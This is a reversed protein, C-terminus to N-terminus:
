KSSKKLLTKRRDQEDATDEQQLFLEIEDDTPWGTRRVSPILGTRTSKLTGSRIDLFFEEGAMAEIGDGLNFGVEAFDRSYEAVLRPHLGSEIGRSALFALGIATVIKRPSHKLRLKEVFSVLDSELNFSSDLHCDHWRKKLFRHATDAQVRDLSSLGNKRLAATRLEIEFRWWGKAVNHKPAKHKNYIKIVQPRKGWELTNHGKKNRYVKDSPYHPKVIGELAELRFAPHSVFFDRTLALKRVSVAKEWGEPYADMLEGTSSDLLWIPRFVDRLYEIVWHIVGPLLEVPCLTSTPQGKIVDLIRSPNFDLSVLDGGREMKIYINTRKDLNINGKAYNENTGNSYTKVGHSTLIEASGDSYTSLLPISILIKDIGIFETNDTFMPKMSSPIYAKTTIM